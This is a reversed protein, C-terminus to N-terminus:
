TPFVCTIEITRSSKGKNYLMTRETTSLPVDDRQTINNVTEGIHIHRPLYNDQM